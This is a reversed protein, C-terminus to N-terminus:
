RSLDNWTIPTKLTAEAHRAAEEPSAFLRGAVGKATGGRGHVFYNVGYFYGDADRPPYGPVQDEEPEPPLDGDRYKVIMVEAPITGDYLWSGRRLVTPM